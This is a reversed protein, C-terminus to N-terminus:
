VVWCGFRAGVVPVYPAVVLDFGLFCGAVLGDFCCVRLDSGVGVLCNLSLVCDGFFGRLCDRLGVLLRLACEFGVCPMLDCGAAWEWACLLLWVFWLVFYLACAM